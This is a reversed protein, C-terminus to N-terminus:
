LVGASLSLSFSLGYNGVHVLDALKSRPNVTRDTLDAIHIKAVRLGLRGGFMQLFSM